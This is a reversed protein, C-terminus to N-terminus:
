FIDNDSPSETKAEMLDQNPSYSLLPASMTKPLICPRNPIAPEGPVDGHLGGVGGPLQQSSNRAGSSDGFGGSRWERSRRGTEADKGTGRRGGETAAENRGAGRQRDGGRETQSQEGGLRAQAEKRSM